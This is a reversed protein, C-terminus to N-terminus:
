VVLVYKMVWWDPTRKGLASSVQTEETDLHAQFSVQYLGPKDLRICFPLQQQSGTRIVWGGQVDNGRGTSVPFRSSEGYVTEGSSSINVPRVALPKQQEFSVITNRNGRNEIEVNVLVYRADDGSITEQSTRMSLNLVAQQISEREAKKIDIELKRSEQELNKNEQELKKNERELKQLEIRGRSWQRLWVALLVTWFGGALVAIVAAANAAVKLWSIIEPSPM